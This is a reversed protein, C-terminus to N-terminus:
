SKGSSILGVTQLNDKHDLIPHFAELFLTKNWSLRQYKFLPKDRMFNIIVCSSEVHLNTVLEKLLCFCVNSINTVSPQLKRTQDVINFCTFSGWDGHRLSMLISDRALLGFHAMKGNNM